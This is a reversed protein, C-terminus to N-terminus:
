GEADPRDEPPPVFHDYGGSERKEGQIRVGTWADTFEGIVTIPTRFEQRFAHMIQTCEGSDTAFLLEYDEGGRLATEIPDLGWRECYEKLPDSLPLRSPDVNVGLRGPKALHAADQVLGDSIDLMAHVQPRGSLWLGELIRPRPRLHAQKLQHADRAHRLADLGAASDGLMGTVTLLDGIQAGRRRLFRNGSVEGLVTIDISLLEASRTTDGGIVVVGYRSLLNSIGQYMQELFSVSTDRPCSLSTLAFLPTGGMAAIDSLSSAAVKWGIEEPNAYNCQFHTNEVSLDSTIMLQRGFLRVVACDDGIGEVVTPTSPLYRALREILKFEGIDEVRKM